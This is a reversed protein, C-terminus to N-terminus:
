RYFGKGWSISTCTIPSGRLIAEIDARIILANVGTFDAPNVTIGDLRKERKMGRVLRIGPHKDERELVHVCRLPPNLFPPLTPGARDPPQPAYGVRERILLLCRSSTVNLDQKGAVREAQGTKSLRSLIGALM